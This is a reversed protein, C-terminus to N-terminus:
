KKLVNYLCTNSINGDNHSKMALFLVLLEGTYALFSFFGEKLYKFFRPLM